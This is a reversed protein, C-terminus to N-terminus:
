NVKDLEHCTYLYIQRLTLIVKGLILNKSIPGFTRSDTSEQPNDGAVFYTMRLGAASSDRCELIRKLLLKGDRPDRVVVAEGIKPQSFIYPLSSALITTGSSYAPLMSQGSVKLRLLISFRPLKM